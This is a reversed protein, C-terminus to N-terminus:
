GVCLRGRGGAGRGLGVGGGWSVGFRRRRRELIEGPVQAEHVALMGEVGVELGVVQGLQGVCAPHLGMNVVSHVGADDFIKCGHECSGLGLARM